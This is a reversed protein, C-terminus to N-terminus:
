GKKPALEGAVSALRGLDAGPAEIHKAVDVIVRLAEADSASRNSALAWAVDALTTKSLRTLGHPAFVTPRNAAM